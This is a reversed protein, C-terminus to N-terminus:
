SVEYFIFLKPYPINVSLIELYQENTRECIPVPLAKLAQPHKVDPNTSSLNCGQGLFLLHHHQLYAFEYTHRKSTQILILLHDIIILKGTYDFPFQNWFKM